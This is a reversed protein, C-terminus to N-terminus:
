LTKRLPLHHFFQPYQPRNLCTRPSNPTRRPDYSSQSRRSQPGRRPLSRLRCRALHGISNTQLQSKSPPIEYMRTSTLIPEMSWGCLLPLGKIKSDAREKGHGVDVFDFSAKGQTFGLTFDRLNEANALSGDRLMAKSLGTVNACVKAMVEIDETLGSCQELVSNRLANAASKGGEIGQRILNENFQPQDDACTRNTASPLLIYKRDHWRWGGVCYYISKSEACTLAQV